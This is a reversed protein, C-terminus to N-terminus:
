ELGGGDVRRRGRVCGRQVRGQGRAQVAAPIASARTHSICVADRLRRHCCSSGRVRLDARQTDIVEGGGGGGFRDREGALLLADGHVAQQRGPRGRHLGRLHAALRTPRLVAGESGGVGCQGVVRM